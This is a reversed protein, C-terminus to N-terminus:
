CLLIWNLRLKDVTKSVIQIGLNSKSQTCTKSSNLSWSLNSSTYIKPHLTTKFYTYIEYCIWPMYQPTSPWTLLYTLLINRNSATSFLECQVTAESNSYFHTWYGGSSAMHCGVYDSIPSFVTRSKHDQLATCGVSLPHELTPLVCNDSVPMPSATVTMQWTVRSLQLKWRLFM